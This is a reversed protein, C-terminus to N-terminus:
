LQWVMLVITRQTGGSWFNIIQEQRPPFLESTNFLIYASSALYGVCWIMYVNRYNYKGSTEELYKINMSKFITKFICTDTQFTNLIFFNYRPFWNEYVYITSTMPSSFESLNRCAGSICM